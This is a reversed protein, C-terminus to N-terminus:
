ADKSHLDYANSSSGVQEIKNQVQVQNTNRQSPTQEKGPIEASFNIKQPVPV